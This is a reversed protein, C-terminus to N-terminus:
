PAQEEYALEFKHISARYRDTPTVDDLHRRCLYVWEPYETRHFHYFGASPKGCLGCPIVEVHSM